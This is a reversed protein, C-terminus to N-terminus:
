IWVTVPYKWGIMTIESLVHEKQSSRKLLHCWYLSIPQQFLHRAKSELVWRQQCYHRCVASDALKLQASLSRDVGSCSERCGNRRITFRSITFQLSSEFSLTDVFFTFCRLGFCFCPSSPVASNGRLSDWAVALTTTGKFLSFLSPPTISVLHVARAKVGKYQIIEWIICLIFKHKVLFVNLVNLM